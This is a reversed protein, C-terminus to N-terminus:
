TVCLKIAKASGDCMIGEAEGLEIAAVTEETQPIALAEGVAVAVANLFVAHGFVAVTDGRRGFDGMGDKLLTHLEGTVKAMYGRFLPRGQHECGEVSADTFYTNLTGYGLKDFMKECQPTGSRAPHLTHLTLSGPGGKPFASATM